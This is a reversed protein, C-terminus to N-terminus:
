IQLVFREQIQFAGQWGRSFDKRQCDKTSEVLRLSWLAAQILLLTSDARETLCFRFCM